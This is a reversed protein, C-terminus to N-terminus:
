PFNYTPLNKFKGYSKYLNAFQTFDLKVCVLKPTNENNQSIIHSIKPKGLTKEINYKTTM